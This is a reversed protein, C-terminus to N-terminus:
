DRFEINFSENPIAPHVAINWRYYKGDHGGSMQTNTIYDLITQDPRRDYKWNIFAWLMEPKSFIHEMIFSQMEDSSEADDAREDGYMEYFKETGIENYVFSDEVHQNWTIQSQPYTRNFDLLFQKYEPIFQNDLVDEADQLLKNVISLLVERYPKETYLVSFPGDLGTVIFSPHSIRQRKADPNEHTTHRRM